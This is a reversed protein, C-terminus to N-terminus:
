LATQTDMLFMMPDKERKRESPCSSTCEAGMDRLFPTMTTETKPHHVLQHHWVLLQLWLVRAATIVTVSRKIAKTAPVIQNEHSQTKHHRLFRFINVNGDESWNLWWRQCNVATQLPHWHSHQWRHCHSLQWRSAPQFTIGAYLSTHLSKYTPSLFTVNHHGGTLWHAQSPM